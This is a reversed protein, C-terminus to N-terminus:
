QNLERDGLLEAHLERAMEASCVVCILRGQKTERLTGPEPSVRFMYSIDIETMAWEQRKWLAVTDM